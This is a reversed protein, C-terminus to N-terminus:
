YLVLIFSAFIEGCVERRSQINQGLNTIKVLKRAIVFSWAPVGITSGIAIHSVQGLKTLILSNFVHCVPEGIDCWVELKITSSDSWVFENISTILSMVMVWIAVAHREKEAARDKM